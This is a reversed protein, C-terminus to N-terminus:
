KHNLDTEGHITQLLQFYLVTAATAMLKMEDDVGMKSNTASYRLSAMLETECM